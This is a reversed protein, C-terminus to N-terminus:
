SFFIRLGVLGAFFVTAADPALFPFAALHVILRFFHSDLVKVRSPYKRFGEFRMAAFDSSDVPVPDGLLQIPIGTRSLRLFQTPGLRDEMKGNKARISGALV